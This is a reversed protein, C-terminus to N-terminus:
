GQVGLCNAVNGAGYHSVAVEIYSQGSVYGAYHAASVGAHYMPGTCGFSGGWGAREM